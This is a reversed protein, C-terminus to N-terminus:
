VSNQFLDLYPTEFNGLFPFVSQLEANGLGFWRGLTAAYQETATTPIMRAATQTYRDSGVDYDPIDGIIRAGNVAGGIVFHHNGWGHDTGNGNSTMTRGFDSGTFTTVNESLGIEQMARQFAGVAESFQEQRVPLINPQGDHTDFGTMTAFFVQRGVNLTGRINITNAIVKLQDGISSSPFETALPSSNTIASLYDENSDRAAEFSRALDGILFNDGRINTSAFHRELATKVVDSDSASGLDRRSNLIRPVDVGGERAVFQSIGAGRLFIDSTTATIAAFTGNSSPDADIVKRAFEAGWGNRIGELDGSMWTSQQDNHSFLNRPLPKSQQLVDNRVVPVILPGVNGVIAVDGAQYLDALDQMNPPLGFRRGGSGAQEGLELLNERDRTSSGSGEGYGDFLDPRVNRMADFSPQDVPLVTDANDMGGLFFICVLAKYGSTDAARAPVHSALAGLMGCSAGFSAASLGLFRRRNYYVM